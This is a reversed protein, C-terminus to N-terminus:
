LKYKDHVATAGRGKGRTLKGALKDYVSGIDLVIGKHRKLECAYAKGLIGNGVLCLKGAVDTRNIWEMCMKYQYPWHGQAKREEFMQEANTIFSDIKKINFTKRFQEDLNRGSTYILEDQNHLLEFLLGSELLETHVDISTTKIDKVQPRQEVLYEYARAWHSGCNEIHYKTPIGIVNCDLYSDKLQEAIKDYEEKPPVLGWQRRAVYTRKIDAMVLLEGDGLRNLLWPTGSDLAKIIEDYVENYKM